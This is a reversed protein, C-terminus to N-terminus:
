SKFFGRRWWVTLSALVLLVLDVAISEDRGIHTIIAGIMTLALGIAAVPVLIMFKKLLMPLILGLVGLLELVAIIKVQTASFDSVWGMNPNSILDPYPTVLKMVGAGLFAIAVLIQVIWIVIKM